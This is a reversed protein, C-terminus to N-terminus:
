LRDYQNGTIIERKTVKSGCVPCFGFFAKEPVPYKERIEEDTMKGDLDCFIDDVIFGCNSCHFFRKDDYDVCTPKEIDQRILQKIYGQKNGCESLKQIIDADNKNNLKLYVGTTYQRDYKAMARLLAKSAPM